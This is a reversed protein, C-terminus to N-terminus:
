RSSTVFSNDLDILNIKKTTLTYFLIIKCNLNLNSENESLYKHKSENLDKLPMYEKYGWSGHLEFLQKESQCKDVRKGNSDLISIQFSAKVFTEQRQSNINDFLDENLNKSEVATQSSSPSKILLILGSSDNSDYFNEEIKKSNNQNSHHNHKNKPNSSFDALDGTLQSFNVFLSLNNEFEKNYGNPYLQLKWKVNKLLKDILNNSNNDTLNQHNRNLFSFLKSRFKVFKILNEDKIHQQQQQDSTLINSIEVDNMFTHQQTSKMLFNFWNKIIWAHKYNVILVTESDSCELQTVYVKYETIICFDTSKRENLWILLQKIKCL